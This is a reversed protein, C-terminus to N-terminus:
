VQMWQIRATIVEELTSDAPLGLAEVWPDLGGIQSHIRRVADRVSLGNERRCLRKVGVRWAAQTSGNDPHGTLAALHSEAENPPRITGAAVAANYDSISRFAEALHHAAEKRNSREISKTIGHPFRLRDHSIECDYGGRAQFERLTMVVPAASTETVPAPLEACAVPSELTGLFDFQDM